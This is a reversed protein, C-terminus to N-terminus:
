LTQSESAAQPLSEEPRKWNWFVSCGHLDQRQSFLRDLDYENIMDNDCTAATAFAGAALLQKQSKESLIHLQALEEPPLVVKHSYGFEMGPLPRQNLLLYIEEETFVEKGPPTVVAVKRAVAEYDNWCFAGTIEDCIARTLAGAFILSTILIPWLLRDAGLVRSSVAYLGPVALIGVFPAILCFYRGFTPRGVVLEASIGLTLWACLYFEKRLLHGWGSVRSIYVLGFVALMGLLLSQPDALWATLTDLDHPMPNPWYVTRFHLQYKAVNFWVVSPSQAALRCIPLFPMFAGLAFAVAKALRRGARNHWAIWVLLVVPLSAALLTAAAAAGASAGCACALVGDRRDVAALALRFACVSTFLAFGYAQGLPGFEVLNICCGIMVSATIAGAVQWAREPFRSLVFQAALVMAACTELAALAHPGHWTDGCVHLLFANWYANLPTQPFCFDLYPRMGGKILQAALLHFGEDDTFARTEAYLLLGAAFATWLGYLWYRSPGRKEAQRAFEAAGPDPNLFTAQM